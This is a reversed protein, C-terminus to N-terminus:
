ENEQELQKLNPWQLRKWVKRQSGHGKSLCEDDANYAAKTKKNRTSGHKRPGCPAGPEDQTSGARSITHMNIGAFYTIGAWLVLKFGTNCYLFYLCLVSYNSKPEKFCSYAFYLNNNTINWKHKACLAM